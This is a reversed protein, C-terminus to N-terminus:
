LIFRSKENKVSRLNEVIKKKRLFEKHTLYGYNGYWVKQKEEKMKKVENIKLVVEM